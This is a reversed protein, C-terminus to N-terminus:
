GGAHMRRRLHGRRRGNRSRGFRKDSLRVGVNGMGKERPLLFM